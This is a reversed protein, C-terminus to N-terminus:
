KRGPPRLPRTQLVAPTPVERGRPAKGSSILNEYEGPEDLMSTVWDRQKKTLGKAWHEGDHVAYVGAELKELMDEFAERAFVIKREESTEDLKTLARKLLSIDDARSV